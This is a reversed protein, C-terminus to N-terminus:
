TSIYFFPWKESANWHFDNAPPKNNTFVFCVVFCISTLRVSAINQPMAFKPFDRSKRTLYKAKFYNLGLTVVSPQLLDNSKSFFSVIIIITTSTFINETDSKQRGHRMQHCMIAIHRWQGLTVLSSHVMIGGLWDSAPMPSLQGILAWYQSCCLLSLHDVSMHVCFGSLCVTSQLNRTVPWIASFAGSMM